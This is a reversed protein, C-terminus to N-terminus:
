RSSARALEKLKLINEKPDGVAFVASGVCLINAGARVIEPITEENVGGDVEINIMPHAERLAHIKDLVAPDFSQGSSGPHVGLM